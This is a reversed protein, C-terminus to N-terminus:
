LLDIPDNSQYSHGEQGEFWIQLEEVHAESELEEADHNHADRLEKYDDCVVADQTSASKPYSPSVGEWSGSLDLKYTLWKALKGNNVASKPLWVLKNLKVADGWHIDICLVEYQYAKETEKQVYAAFFSGNREFEITLM